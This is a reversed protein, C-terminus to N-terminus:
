RGREGRGRGGEVARLRLDSTYGEFFIQVQVKSNALKTCKHLIIVPNRGHTEDNCNM